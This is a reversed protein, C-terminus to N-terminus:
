WSWLDTRSQTLDYAVRSIFNIESRSFFFYSSIQLVNIYSSPIAIFLHTPSVHNQFSRRRNWGWENWNVKIISLFALAWCQAGAMWSWSGERWTGCHRWFLIVSQTWFISNFTNLLSLFIARIVRQDAFSVGLNTPKEAISLDKWSILCYVVKQPLLINDAISIYSESGNQFTEKAHSHRTVDERTHSM